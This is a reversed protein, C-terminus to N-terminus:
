PAQETQNTRNIVDSLGERATGSYGRDEDSPQNRGPPQPQILDKIPDIRTLDDLSLGKDPAFSSIIRAGAALAPATRAEKLIQQMSNPEAQNGDKPPPFVFVVCIYLLSVMIGGRLLGFLFGLSRDIASLNTKQIRRSVVYSIASTVILTGLFLVVVSLGKAALELTEGKLDMSKLYPEVFPVMHPMGYLAAAVAAVLGVITLVEAVFGRVLALLGSILIIILVVADVPNAGYIDM